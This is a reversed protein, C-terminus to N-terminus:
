AAAIRKRVLPALFKLLSETCADPPVDERLLVWLGSGLRAEPERLRLLRRDKDASFCWMHSVGLGCRVAEKLSNWSNVTTVVAEDQPIGLDNADASLSSAMDRSWGIWDHHRRQPQRALRRQYSRAAYLARQLQGVSVGRLHAPVERAICLGVDAKRSTLSAVPDHAQTLELHIEPFHERFAAFEAMFEDGLETPTAVRVTGALRTDLVALRAALEEVEQEIRQASELVARGFATPRYGNLTQEFLSNGLQAELRTVRRGVTTRNIKLRESAATYNGSRVANLFIRLDDWDIM